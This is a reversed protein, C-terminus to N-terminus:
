SLTPYLCLINPKTGRVGQGPSQEPGKRPPVAGLDRNHGEVKTECKNTARAKFYNLQAGMIYM